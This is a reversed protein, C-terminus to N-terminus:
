GKTETFYQRALKNGMLGIAAMGERGLAKLSASIKNFAVVAPIAAVLGIATAFLAEAIGPAVVALSTEGSAAIGVFSNMIGWVTGFLGIFPSTSGVTALFLTRRGLADLQAGFVTAMAREVRERYARRTEHGANDQSEEVGATAVLVTFDPCHSFFDSDIRVATSAASMLAQIHAGAKRLLIVKEFIIAWCLLSALLLLGMVAQVVPDANLFMSEISLNQPHM